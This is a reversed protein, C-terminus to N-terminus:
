IKVGFSEAYEKFTTAVPVIYDYKCGKPGFIPISQPRGQVLRIGKPCNGRSSVEIELEVYGQEM